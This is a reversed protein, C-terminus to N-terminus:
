RILMFSQKKTYNSKKDSERGKATIIIFYTGPSAYSGGVKGDWCEDENTWTHMVKGWRNIITARFKSLSKAKVCFKDNAGDGNPTFVNPLEVLSSDVKIYKKGDLGDLEFTYPCTLDDIRTTAIFKVKYTGPKEYIFNFTSQNSTGGEILNDEDDTFGDEYNQKVIENEQFLLWQYTEIKNSKHSFDIAFPAESPGADYIFEPDVVPTIADIAKSKLLPCGYESVRVAFSASNEFASDDFLNIFNGTTYNNLKINQIEVGNRDLSISYADNTNTPQNAPNIPIDWTSFDSNFFIAECTYKDNSLLVESKNTNNFVWAQHYTVETGNDVTVQYKGDTLKDIRFDTISLDVYTSSSDDYKSWLYSFGTKAEIGFSLSAVGGGDPACYIYIPLNDGSATTQYSSKNAQIQGKTYNNLCTFLFLALLLITKKFALINM